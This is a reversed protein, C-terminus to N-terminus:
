DLLKHRADATRRLAPQQRIPRLEVTMDDDDGEEMRRSTGVGQDPSLKAPRAGSRRRTCLSLVRVICDNLSIVPAFIRLRIPVYPSPHIIQTSGSSTSTSSPNYPDTPVPRAHMAMIM